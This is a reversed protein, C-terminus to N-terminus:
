RGGHHKGRAQRLSDFRAVMANYKEVQDPTLLARIDRRMAQREVNFQERVQAWISDMVPQHRTIVEAVARQQTADLSLDEALRRAYADPSFPDRRAHTDRDALMTAAGGALGGLAFALALLGTAVWRSRTM